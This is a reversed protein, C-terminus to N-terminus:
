SPNLDSVSIGSDSRGPSPPALWYFSLLSLSFMNFLDSIAATLARVSIPEAFGEPADGGILVGRVSVAKPVEVYTGPVVLTRENGEILRTEREFRGSPVVYSALSVVFVLVTLLVFVHPIRARGLRTMWQPGRRTGPTLALSSSTYRDPRM